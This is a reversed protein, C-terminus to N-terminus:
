NRRFPSQIVLRGMTVYRESGDTEQICLSARVVAKSGPGSIRVVAVVDYMTELVIQNTINQEIGSWTDTRQTAVAFSKGELPLIKPNELCDCVFGRCGKLSWSELGNAFTANHVISGPVRTMSSKEEVKLSLASFPLSEQCEMPNSHKIVATSVLLDVGSPPGELYFVAKQPRTDLLLKGELM